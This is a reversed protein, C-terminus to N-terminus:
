PKWSSYPQGNPKLRPRKPSPQTDWQGEFTKHKPVYGPPHRAVEKPGYTKLTEGKSNEYYVFGHCSWSGHEVQIPLKSTPGTYDGPPKRPRPWYAVPLDDLVRLPVLERDKDVLKWEGPDYEANVVGAPTNTFTSQSKPSVEGSDLPVQRPNPNWDVERFLPDIYPTQRVYWVIDEPVNMADTMTKIYDEWIAPELGVAKEREYVVEYCSPCLAPVERQGFDTRQCVQLGITAYGVRFPPNTHAFAECPQVQYPKTAKGKRACNRTDCQTFTWEIEKCM